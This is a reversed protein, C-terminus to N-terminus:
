LKKEEIEELIQQDPTLPRLRAFLKTKIISIITRNLAVSFGLAILVNLANFLPNNLYYFTLVVVFALALISFAKYDYKIDVYKKVDFHRYISMAGYAAVMALAPAFLGLLPILCVTLLISVGAAVISSNMVQKTMKKAIYIAGYLSVISNLFTGAILVPIYLYAEHYTKSVILTFVLSVGAIICLGLAGFLRISANMTQSFFKDRDSSDIHMSASETWSMGFFSFLSSFILPFKYAIAYIGNSAVGLAIAVITRDAANILWWSMGNPVLPTSYRLLKREFAKDRSGFDIYKYIQQSVFLYGACALNGLVAALLMGEIGLGMFVIFVVNTIITAVGAIVSAISYKVNNGFGRTIQLLMNSAIVALMTAAILWVHPIAIFINVIAVVVLSGMAILGVIRIISSIIKRAETTRTRADILFRFASMELQLTVLPAILSVYTMILDVTGFESTALYSTYIPLLLFTLFQTSIRGAAIVITNKVLEKQKPM